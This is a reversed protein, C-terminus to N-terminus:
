VFFIAAFFSLVWLYTDHGLNRARSDGQLVTGTNSATAETTTSEEGIVLGTITAELSSFEVTKGGVIVEAGSVPLSVVTGDITTAMSPLLTGGDPLLVGNGGPLLSLGLPLRTPADFAITTPTGGFVLAPAGSAVGFAVPTGSILTTEGMTLTEGNPLVVGTASPLLSFGSPLLPAVPSEAPKDDGPDQPSGPSGTRTGGQNGTDLPITTGGIIVAVSTPTPSPMNPGPRGPPSPSGPGRSPSAPPPSGQPMGTSTPTLFNYVTSAIGRVAIKTNPIGDMPVPACDRLDHGDYTAYIEIPVESLYTVWKGANIFTSIWTTDDTRVPFCTRPYKPITIASTFCEERGSVETKLPKYFVLSDLFM